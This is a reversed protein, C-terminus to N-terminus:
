AGQSSIYDADEESRFEVFGYGQHLNTVRDKPVYVNVVHDAQVFLEWMLEESVQPDLNNVDATADQNREASHQGLLNAGVGPAIRTKM